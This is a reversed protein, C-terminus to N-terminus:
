ALQKLDSLVRDIFEFYTTGEAPTEGIEVVPIGAKEAAEKLSTTLETTTQPNYVLVDIQQAEIVAYFEAAAAASPDQHNLTAMRYAAPTADTMPSHAFLHDAIPETQAYRLAPLDHTASHIAELKAVTDTANAGAGPSLENIKAAIEEAVHAVAETDFWIHENDTVHAHDHDHDHGEHNHEGSLDIAHIIPVQTVATYLWADYGGGGVVVFDAETATAIDRATPEFHHPDIAGGSIIPTVTIDVGATDAVATAVDGWVSTSTVITLGDTTPAATDASSCATLAMGLVIASLTALTTRISSTM